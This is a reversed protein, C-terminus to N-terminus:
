GASRWVWSEWLLAAAVAGVSCLGLIVVLSPVLSLRQSVCQVNTSWALLASPYAPQIEKLLSGQGM